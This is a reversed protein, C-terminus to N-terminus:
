PTPEDEDIIRGSGEVVKDDDGSTRGRGYDRRARWPAHEEVVERPAINLLMYVAVALM